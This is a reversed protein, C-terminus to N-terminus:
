VVARPAAPTPVAALPWTLWAFVYYGIVALTLPPLAVAVVVSVAVVLLRVRAPEWGHTRAWGGCVGAIVREERSRMPRGAAAEWQRPDSGGLRDAIAVAMLSGVVTGALAAVPTADESSLLPMLAGAGVGFLAAMAMALLVWRRRLRAALGVVAGPAATLVVIVMMALVDLWLPPDGSPDWLTWTLAHLVMLATFGVLLMVVGMLAAVGLLRIWSGRARVSVSIVGRWGLGMLMVVAASGRWLLVARGPCGM